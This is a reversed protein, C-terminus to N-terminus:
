RLQEQLQQQGAQQQITIRRQQKRVRRKDRDPEQDRRALKPSREMLAKMLVSPHQPIGWEDFFQRASRRLHIEVPQASEVEGEPTSASSPLVCSKTVVDKAHPHGDAFEKWM